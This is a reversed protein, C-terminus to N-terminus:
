GRWAPAVSARRPGGARDTSTWSIPAVTRPRAARDSRTSEIVTTRWPTRLATLPAIDPRRLVTNRSPAPVFALGAHLGLRRERARAAPHVYRAPWAAFRAAISHQMGADYRTVPGGCTCDPAAGSSGTVPRGPGPRHRPRPRAAGPLRAACRPTADALSAVHAAITGADGRTAPGTLSAAIGLARANAITQEVLPLYIRLAGAEDLGMVTAVERITDLLAVM